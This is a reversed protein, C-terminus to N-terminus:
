PQEWVVADAPEGLTEEEAMIASESISIDLNEVVIAGKQELDFGRVAELVSTAGERAVDFSVVDGSPKRASRENVCLHTVAPSAELLQLVQQTSELPTILRVHLM